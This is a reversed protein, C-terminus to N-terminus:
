ISPHVRRRFGIPPPGTPPVEPVDIEGAEVWKVHSHIYDYFASNGLSYHRGDYTSVDANYPSRKAFAVMAGHLQRVILRSGEPLDVETGHGDEYAGEDWCWRPLLKGDPLEVVEEYSFEGDSDEYIGSAGLSSLELWFYSWEPAKKWFVVELFLPRLLHTIGGIDLELLDPEVFCAGNLDLGGGEPLFMHNLNRTSITMELIRAITSPDDWIARHPPQKPFLLRQIHGWELLCRKHFDDRADLWERIRAVVDAMFPRSEPEYTTCDRLLSHIPRLYDDNTYSELSHEKISHDYQGDFGKQQGTLLIWLTKALSYVDAPRGDAKAARRRMEPAITWRPGVSEDSSTLDPRGPWKVLGFDSLRWGDLWLINAPKLDRHSIGQEHLRALTSALQLILEVVAVSGKGLQKQLPEAVPMMFCPPKQTTPMDPLYSRIIPIIGPDLGTREIVSIESKFRMYRKKGPKILFKVATLEGSDSRCIWVEGNGGRDLYKELM